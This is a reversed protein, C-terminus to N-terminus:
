MTDLPLHWIDNLHLNTLIDNMLHPVIGGRVYVLCGPTVISQNKIQLNGVSKEKKFNM